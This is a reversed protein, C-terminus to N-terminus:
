GAPSAPTVPLIFSPLTTLALRGTWHLACTQVKKQPPMTTGTLLEFGASDRTRLPQATDEAGLLLLPTHRAQVCTCRLYQLKFLHSAQQAAQQSSQTTPTTSIKPGVEPADMKSTGERKARRGSSTWGDHQLALELLGAENSGCATATRSRMKRKFKLLKEGTWGRNLRRKPRAARRLLPTWVMGNVYTPGIHPATQRGRVM